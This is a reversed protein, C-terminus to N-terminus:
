EKKDDHEFLVRSLRKEIQRFLPSDINIHAKKDIIRATNIHKCDNLFLVSPKNLGQICGIKMLHKKGTPNDVPDYATKYQVRNSTMPVVFAKKQYISMILGFHQFGAENIYAQGFDIYCIDGVIIQVGLLECSSIQNRIVWNAESIMSGEVNKPEIGEIIKRKANIYIGWMDLDEIYSDSECNIIQNVVDKNM